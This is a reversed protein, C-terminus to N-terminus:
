NENSNQTKLKDLLEDDQLAQFSLDTLTFIDKELIENLKNDGVIKKNIEDLSTLNNVQNVNIKLFPLKHALRYLLSEFENDDYKLKHQEFVEDELILSEINTRVSTQNIKANLHEIEDNTYYIISKKFHYLDEEIQLLEDKNIARLDDVRYLILLNANKDFQREGIIEKAELFLNTQEDIIGSLLDRKIVLWYNNKNTLRFLRSDSTSVLEHDSSLFLNTIINDM